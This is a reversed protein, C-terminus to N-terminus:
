CSMDSRLYPFFLFSLPGVFTPPLSIRETKALRRVRLHQAIDKEDVDCIVEEKDSERVYVLM